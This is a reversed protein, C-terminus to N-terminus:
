APLRSILVGHRLGRDSVTMADHGLKALITRVICAGGLIVEARAPQLGPISRREDASRSRYLDIQRDLEARDIVTGHVVDPDYSVLGQAVAALNTVTGGIAVVSDPRPQRDLRDLETSLWALVEDLRDTSTAGALGFHEAVRVAGIDLSFQEDVHDNRGFTFQTSGGGSDFVALRGRAAPLASTAALYALRAEEEGSIVEVTVGTRDQVADVLAARNPARRLGATGVAAIDVGAQRVEEVMAVITDVTRAIPESALVGSDSQGEGLRTVVARDAIAHLSGDARREGVHYKVSNTGIDIVAHRTAGIGVLTKLVSAVSINDRGALGLRHVTDAVQSPDTSEVTVTRTTLDDATIETLEVMCGDLRYHSREKHVSVVFLDPHPVILDALIANLSYWPQLAGPAEVGLAALVTLADDTSVPFGAKLTPTWLQLGNDDVKLLVKVDLLGDRVKVSADSHTSLFYREDSREEREPQRSALMDDAEDFTGVSRWEWRPNIGASAKGTSGDATAAM